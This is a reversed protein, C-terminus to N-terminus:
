IVEEESVAMAHPEFDALAEMVLSIVDSACGFSLSWGAGGHGYSHIIRSTATKPETCHINADSSSSNNHQRLEREVRVNRQRFPRLGQAFPYEPDLLANKLPPLFSECRERMRQIIPSGLTLDLNWKHSQSIGGLLLIDDNRPIIFIIEDPSGHGAHHADASISLASEVKPFYKGDNIVRILGGRIPYCSNDNALDFGALGTANVIADAKFRGRLEYEYDFLDRNISETVFKAGKSEVLKMLWSMARDTDIVPALLEYADEVGYETNINYKQILGPDRRFGRVGSERIEKMKELQVEDAELPKPFFFASYKMRVGSAFALEPDAAIADWIKYAMMCWRKSHHLSIPDTHQGCVAPPFEWLAGAIQSTLRIKSTYSAWEKSLITVNYGRDLLLWSTVLATVGGGVVLINPSSETPNIFPAPKFSINKEM